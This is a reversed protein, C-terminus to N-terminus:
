VRSVDIDEILSSCIHLGSVIDREEDAGVVRGRLPSDGWGPGYALQLGFQLCDGADWWRRLSEGQFNSLLADRDLCCILLVGLKRAEWEGRICFEM